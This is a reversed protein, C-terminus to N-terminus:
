AAINFQWVSDNYPQQTLQSPSSIQEVCTPPGVPQRSTHKISVMIHLRLSTYIMMSGECQIIEFMLVQVVNEYPHWRGVFGVRPNQSQEGEPQRLSSAEGWRRLGGLVLIRLHM